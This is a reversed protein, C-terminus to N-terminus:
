RAGTAGQFDRSFSAGDQISTIHRVFKYAVDIERLRRWTRSSGIEQKRLQRAAVDLGEFILKSNLQWTVCCDGNFNM